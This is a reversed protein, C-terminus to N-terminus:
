FSIYQLFAPYSENLPEAIRLRRVAGNVIEEESSEFAISQHPAGDMTLEVFEAFGNAFAYRRRSKMVEVLALSPQEACVNAIDDRSLLTPSPVDLNVGLRAAIHNAFDDSSIPFEGDFYPVWLELVGSRRDLVKVVIREGVIKVNGDITLRSAIYTDTSTSADLESANMEEVVRLFEERLDVGFLRFEYRPELANPSTSSM